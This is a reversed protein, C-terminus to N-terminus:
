GGSVVKRGRIEKYMEDEGAKRLVSRAFSTAAMVLDLSMQVDRLRVGSMSGMMDSLVTDVGERERDVYVSQGELAFRKPRHGAIKEKMIAQIGSDLFDGRTIDVGSIPLIDVLDVAFVVGREGILHSAVQSWGGPAAGLDIVLKDPDFERPPSLLIPHRAALSLLKFSSRSRYSPASEPKKDPDSSTRLRVYPDKAQRALWRNSSPSSTSTKLLVASTRMILIDNIDAPTSSCPRCIFREHLDFHFNLTLSGVATQPKLNLFAATPHRRACAELLLVHLGRARIMMGMWCSGKVVCIDKMEVDDGGVGTVGMGMGESRRLLRGLDSTSVMMGSWGDSESASRVVGRRSGTDHSSSGEKEGGTNM